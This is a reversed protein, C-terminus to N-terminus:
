SKGQVNIKTRSEHHYSMLDNKASALLDNWKGALKNRYLSVKPYLNSQTEHQGWRWEGSRPLLIWTPVGLAGSLHVTSNDISLVLDMATTVAALEDIDSKADLRPITNIQLGDHNRLRYLQKPTTGYQLAHFSVNPIDLLDRMHELQVSRTTGNAKAASSWSLGINFSHGKANLQDRHFQVRKPDATLYARTPPKPATWRWASFLSCHYDFDRANLRPDIKSAQPHFRMKGFSRQFLPNLRPDCELEVTAGMNQLLPLIRAHMIQDGIGQEAWILIKKGKLDQGKWLPFKFNRYYKERHERVNWRGADYNKIGAVVGGERMQWLGYHHLVNPNKPDLAYANEIAKKAEPFNGSSIRLRGMAILANAREKDTKANKIAKSLTKDRPEFTLKQGSKINIDM